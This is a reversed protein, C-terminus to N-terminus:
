PSTEAKRETLRHPLQAGRNCISHHLWVQKGSDVLELVDSSPSVTSDIKATESILFMMHRWVRESAPYKISNTKWRQAVEKARNSQEAVLEMTAPNLSNDEVLMPFSDDVSEFLGYNLIVYEPRVVPQHNIWGVFIGADLGKRSVGRLQPASNPDSNYYEAVHKVSLKGWERALSRTDDGVGAFATRADEFASFILKSSSYQSVTGMAAVASHGLPLIKCADDTYRTVGGSMWGERNDAVLFIAKGDVKVIVSTGYSRCSALIIVIAAFLQSPCCTKLTTM